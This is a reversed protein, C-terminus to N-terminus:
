HTELCSPLLNTVDDNVIVAAKRASLPDDAVAKHWALCLNMLARLAHLSDWGMSSGWDPTLNKAQVTRSTFSDNPSLPLGSGRRGQLRLPNGRLGVGVSVAPVSESQVM